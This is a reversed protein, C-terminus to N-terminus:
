YPDGAEPNRSAVKKNSHHERLDNWGEHRLACSPSLDCGQASRWGYRHYRGADRACHDWDSRGNRDIERSLSTASILAAMPDQGGDNVRVIFENGNHGHAGATADTGYVIKLGPIKLSRKFTELVIAEGKEMFAFGEDNYNGIGMYKSKNEMYNQLVVGINPDYYTGNAAMIKFVDDTVYAGHEVSTCGALSAAKAASAAHAHM